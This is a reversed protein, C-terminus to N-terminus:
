DNMDNHDPNRVLQVKFLSLSLRRDPISPFYLPAIENQVLAVILQMIHVGAPSPSIMMEGNIDPVIFQDPLLHLGTMASVLCWRGQSYLLIMNFGVPTSQSVKERYTLIIVPRSPPQNIKEILRSTIEQKNERTVQITETNDDSLLSIATALDSQFTEMNFDIGSPLNYNEPAELILGLTELLSLDNYDPHYAEAYASNSVALADLIPLFGSYSSHFASSLNPLLDWFGSIGCVWEVAEEVADAEQTQPAETQEPELTAESIPEPDPVPVPTELAAATSSTTVSSRTPAPNKARMPSGEPPSEPRPFPNPPLSASAAPASAVAVAPGGSTPAAGASPQARLEALLAQKPRTNLASEPLSRLYERYAILEAMSIAPFQPLSDEGYKQRHTFLALTSLYEQYAENLEGQLELPLSEPSITESTGRIARIANNRLTSVDQSRGTRYGNYQQIRTALYITRPPIDSHDTPRISQSRTLVVNPNSTESVTPELEEESESESEEEEEAEEIADMLHPNLLERAARNLAALAEESYERSILISFDRNNIYASPNKARASLVTNIIIKLDDTHYPPSNEAGSYIPDMAFSCTSLILASILTTYTKM